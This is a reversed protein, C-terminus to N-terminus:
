RHGYKRLWADAESEWQAERDDDHWVHRMYLVIGVLAAFVVAVIYGLVAIV